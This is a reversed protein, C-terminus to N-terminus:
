LKAFSFHQLAQPFKLVHVSWLVVASIAHLISASPFFSASTGDGGGGYGGDGRGGGGGRGSTPFSRHETFGDDTSNRPCGLSKQSIAYPGERASRHRRSSFSFNQKFVARGDTDRNRRHQKKKEETMSQAIQYKNFLIDCKLLNFFSGWALGTLAPCYFM